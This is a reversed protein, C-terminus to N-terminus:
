TNRKLYNKYINKKQRQLKKLNQVCEYVESRELKESSCILLSLEM